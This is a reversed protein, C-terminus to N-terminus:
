RNTIRHNAPLSRKGDPVARPRCISRRRLGRVKKLIPDVQLLFAIGRANALATMADGSGSALTAPNSGTTALLIMRDYDFRGDHDRSVALVKRVETLSVHRQRLEAAIGVELAQQFSYGLM